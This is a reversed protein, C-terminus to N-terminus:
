PSKQSWRDGFHEGVQIQFFKTMKYKCICPKDLYHLSTVFDSRVNVINMEFNVLKWCNKFDLQM